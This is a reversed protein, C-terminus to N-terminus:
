SKVSNINDYNTKITHYTTNCQICIPIYRNHFYASQFHSRTLNYSKCVRRIQKINSYPPNEHSDYFVSYVGLRVWHWVISNRITHKLPRQKDVKPNIPTPNTPSPPGTSHCDDRVFNIYFHTTYQTSDFYHTEIHGPSFLVIIIFTIHM